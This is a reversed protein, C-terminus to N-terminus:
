FTLMQRHVSFPVTPKSWAACRICLTLTEQTPQRQCPFNPAGQCRWAQLGSIFLVHIALFIHLVSVWDQIYDWSCSPCQVVVLYLSADCMQTFNM